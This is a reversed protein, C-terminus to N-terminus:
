LYRDYPALSRMWIPLFDWNWLFKPLHRRLSARSRMFTIGTFFAFVILGTSLVTSTLVGAPNIYSLSPIPYFIMTGFLNFFFHVWAAQITLATTTADTTTVGAALFITLTTGLNAGCILPYINEAQIIENAAMPVLFSTIVSSSQLLLTVCSGVLLLLYGHLYKKWWSDFEPNLISQLKPSISSQLLIRLIRTIGYFSLGLMLFSM